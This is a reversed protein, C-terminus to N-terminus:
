EVAKLAKVTKQPTKQSRSFRSRTVRRPFLGGCLTINTRVFLPWYTKQLRLPYTMSRELFHLPKFPHHCLCFAEMNYSPWLFDHALKFSYHHIALSMGM